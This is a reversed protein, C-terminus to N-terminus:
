QKGLNQLARVYQIIRWRDEVPIRPGYAPMTTKGISITEFVAGDALLPVRNVTLPDGGTQEHFTPIVVPWRKGVMGHGTPGNGSAGSQGHCPACFINFRERGRELNDRTYPLPNQAIYSGDINKGPHEPDPLLRPDPLSGRAVTDEVPLRMGRHDSWGEFSSESQAKIKPQFDMDLVLHVPPADSIGGRCGALALALLGARVMHHHSSRHNGHHDSM